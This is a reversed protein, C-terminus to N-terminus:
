KAHRGTHGSDASEYFKGFSGLAFVDRGNASWVDLLPEGLEGDFAVEHRPAAMQPACSGAMMGSPWCYTKM